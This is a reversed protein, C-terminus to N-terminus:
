VGEPREVLGQDRPVDDPGVPCEGGDHLRLESWQIEDTM